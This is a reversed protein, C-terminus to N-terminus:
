SECGIGDNDNGDLDYVDPGVVRVPGQVYYPGNGSGGACDVDSTVNPVCAGEYSPHCDPAPPSTTPPSTTPPATTPPPAPTTAPATTSTTTEPPAATTTSAWQGRGEERAIAEAGDLISAMQVDPPYRRAIAMGSEVMAENVFLDGLYVYRLLRDFQDRDSTDPVLRVSQGAVLSALLEASDAAFPAGPEPADIGILRVPENTGNALLVRITDGDTVFAVEAVVEGLAAVTTTTKEVPAETITPASTPPAAVSTVTTTPPASQGTAISSIGLFATALTLSPAWAPSFPRAPRKVERRAQNLEAIETQGATVWAAAEKAQTQLLGIPDGGQAIARCTNLVTLLQEAPGALVHISKRRGVSLQLGAGHLEVGAIDDFNFAVSKNGSFVIRRNSFSVTGTDIATWASEGERKRLEILTVHEVQALGTEDRKLPLAVDQPGVGSAWALERRLKAAVSERAALDSSARAIRHQLDVITAKYSLWGKRDTSWAKWSERDWFSWWKSAVPPAELAGADNVTSDRAQEFRAALGGVLFSRFAELRDPAFGLADNGIEIEFHLMRDTLAVDARSWAGISQGHISVEIREASIEVSGSDRQGPQDLLWLQGPYNPL